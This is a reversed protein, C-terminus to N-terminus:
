LAGKVGVHGSASLHLLGAALLLGILIWPAPSGHFNLVEAVHGRSGTPSNSVVAVATGDGKVAEGGFMLPAMRLNDAASRTGMQSAYSGPAVRGPNKVAVAQDAGFYLNPSTPISATAPDDFGPTAM